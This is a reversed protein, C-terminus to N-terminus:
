LTMRFDPHRDGIPARTKGTEWMLQYIEINRQRKGNARAKNEWLCYLRYCATLEFLSCQFTRLRVCQRHQFALGHVSLWSCDLTRKHVATGPRIPRVPEAAVQIFLM